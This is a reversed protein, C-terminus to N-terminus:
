KLVKCVGKPGRPSTCARELHRLLVRDSFQRTARGYSKILKDNEPTGSLPKLGDATRRFLTDRNSKEDHVYVYSGDVIASQLNNGSRQVFLKRNETVSALLNRGSWDSPAPIGLAATLTPALDLHNALVARTKQGILSKPLHIYFPVQIEPLDMRIGHGALSDDLTEGHDGIIAIATNSRLGHDDLHQLLRGINQDVYNLSNRYRNRWSDNVFPTELTPTSYPHHPYATVYAAFFPQDLNEGLWRNMTEVTQSEQSGWSWGSGGTEHLITNAGYVRDFGKDRWLYGINRYSLFGSSFMATRYGQRKLAEALSIGPLPGNYIRSPHGVASIGGVEDSYMISYNSQFSTVSTTFYNPFAISQKLLRNLNPTTDPDIYTKATSELIVLILNQGRAIGNLDEDQYDSADGTHLPAYINKSSPKSARLRAALKQFDKHQPLPKYYRIFNVVANKKLGYTYVGLLSLYSGAFLVACVIGLGSWVRWRPIDWRAAWRRHLILAIPFCLLGLLLATVVPIDIHPLVSGSIVSLDGALRIHFITLPSGYIQNIKLSIVCFLVVAVHVAFMIPTQWDLWSSSRRKWGILFYVGALFTCILLDSGLLTIIAYVSIEALPDLGQTERYWFLLYLKLGAFFPLLSFALLVARVDHVTRTSFLVPNLFTTVRMFFEGSVPVM